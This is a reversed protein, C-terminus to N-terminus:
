GPFTPWYSVLGVTQKDVLERLTPSLTRVVWAPASQVLCAYWPFHGFVHTLSFFFDTAEFYLRGYDPADMFHFSDGFAYETIVDSTYAKFIHHMQVVEGSLGSKAIRSLLM